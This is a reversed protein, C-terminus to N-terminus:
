PRDLVETDIVRVPFNQPKGTKQADRISNRLMEWPVEGAIRFGSKRGTKQIVEILRGPSPLDCKRCRTFTMSGSWDTPPKEVRALVRQCSHCRIRVLTM